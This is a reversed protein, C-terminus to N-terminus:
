LSQLTGDGAACERGAEVSWNVWFWGVEVTENNKELCLGM